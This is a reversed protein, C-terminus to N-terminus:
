PDNRLKDPSRFVHGAGLGETFLERTGRPISQFNLDSKNIFSSTVGIDKIGNFCSMGDWLRRFGCVVCGSGLCFHGEWKVFNMSFKNELELWSHWSNM